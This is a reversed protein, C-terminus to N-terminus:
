LLEREVLFQRGKATIALSPRREFSSGVRVVLKRELLIDWYYQIKLETVNLPAALYQIKDLYIYGGADAMAKLVAVAGPDLDPPTSPAPSPTAPAPGSSKAIQALASSIEKGMAQQDIRPLKSISLHQALSNLFDGIFSTDEVELAQFESIPPPLNGKTQGSHCLPLIPIRKIWACGTEFNIWPRPLSHPSCLVLFMKANQLATDIEDLWKKGAPLDRVDSSVFVEILGPFSGEMWEKLVHALPAEETIHSIFVKM